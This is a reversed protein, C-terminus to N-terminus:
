QAAVTRALMILNTTDGLATQRDTQRSTPSTFETQRNPCSPKDPKGPCDPKDAFPTFNSIGACYTGIQRRISLSRRERGTNGHECVCITVIRLSKKGSGRKTKLRKRWKWILMQFYSPLPLPLPLPLPCRQYAIVGPAAALHAVRAAPALKTNISM